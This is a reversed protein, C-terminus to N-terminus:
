RLLAKLAAILRDTGAETTLIGPSLRLTQSRADTTIGQARLAAVIQPAPHSEPLHLM